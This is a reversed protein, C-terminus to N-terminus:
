PPVNVSVRIGLVSAGKRHITWLINRKVTHLYIICLDSKYCASNRICINFLCTRVSRNKLKTKNM